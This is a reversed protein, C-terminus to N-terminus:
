SSRQFPLPAAVARRATAANGWSVGVALARTGLGQGPPDGERWLRGYPEAAGRRSPFLNKRPPSRGGLGKWRTPPQPFWTEGAGQARAEGEGVRGGPPSHPFRTGGCGRKLACGEWVRRRAPLHPFGSEGNGQPAPAHPFGTEGCGEGPTINVNTTWAAGGWWVYQVFGVSAIYYWSNM